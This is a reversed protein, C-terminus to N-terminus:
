QWRNGNELFGSNVRISSGEPRFCVYEQPECHCFVFVGLVLWSAILVSAAMAMTVVVPWRGTEGVCPSGALIGQPCAAASCTLALLCDPRASFSFGSISFVAARM